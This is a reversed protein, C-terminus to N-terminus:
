LGPIEPDSFDIFLVDNYIKISFGSLEEKNLSQIFDSLKLLMPIIKKQLSKVEANTQNIDTVISNIHKQNIINM